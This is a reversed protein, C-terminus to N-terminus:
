LNRGFELLAQRILESSPLAPDLGALVRAVETGSYGLVQLASMAEDMSGGAAMAPIQSIGASAATKAVKDKLELVIRQATKTGIGK